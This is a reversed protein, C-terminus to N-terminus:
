IQPDDAFCPFLINYKCFISGLSLYLALLVPGLMSGQPVGCKLPSSESDFPGLTM